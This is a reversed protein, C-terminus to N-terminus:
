PFAEDVCFCSCGPASPGLSPGPEPPLSHAGNESFHPQRHLPEPPAWVLSKAKNRMFEQFEKLASFCSCLSHKDFSGVTAQSLPILQPLSFVDWFVSSLFSPFSISPPILREPKWLHSPTRFVGCMSVLPGHESLVQPPGSCEGSAVCGARTPLFHLHLHLCLQLSGPGPQPCPGLM